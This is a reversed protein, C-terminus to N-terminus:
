SEYFKWSLSLFSFYSLSLVFERLDSDFDFWDFCLLFFFCFCHFCILENFLSFGMLEVGSLMLFSDFSYLMDIGIGDEGNQLSSSFDGITGKSSTM